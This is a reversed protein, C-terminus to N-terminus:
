DIDLIDSIKVLIELRAEAKAATLENVDEDNVGKEYDDIIIECFDMEKKIFKIVEKTKRGQFINENIVEFEDFKQVNKM